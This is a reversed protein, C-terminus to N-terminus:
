FLRCLMHRLAALQQPSCGADDTALVQDVALTTAPGEFGAIHPVARWM